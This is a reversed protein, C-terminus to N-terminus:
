SNSKINESSQMNQFERLPHKNDCGINNAAEHNLEHLLSGIKTQHIGAIGNLEITMARKIANTSSERVSTKLNDANRFSYLVIIDCVLRGHEPLSGWEVLNM